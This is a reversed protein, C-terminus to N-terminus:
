QHDVLTKAEMTACDDKSKKDQWGIMRDYMAKLV